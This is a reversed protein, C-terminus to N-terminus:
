NQEIKFKRRLIQNQLPRRNSGPPRRKSGNELPEDLLALCNIIPGIETSKVQVTRTNRLM